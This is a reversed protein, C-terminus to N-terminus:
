AGSANPRALKNELISIIGAIKVVIAYWLEIIKGFSSLVANFIDKTQTTKVRIIVPKVKIKILIPNLEIMVINLVWCNLLKM